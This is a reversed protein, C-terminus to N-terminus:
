ALSAIEGGSGGEKSGQALYRGPESLLRLPRLGARSLLEGTAQPPPLSDRAVPGGAHRHRLNIEEHSGLHAITLLGGRKLVRAMERLASEKEGFHPFASFCIVRDFAEGKFPMAQADAQLLALPSSLGDRNVRALMGLAFDLAVLKGSPGVERALYPLLIGTGTAVDLVRQGSSLGFLPLLARVGRHRSPSDEEQWSPARGEFFDRKEKM